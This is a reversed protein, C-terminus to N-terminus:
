TLNFRRVGGAILVDAAIYGYLNFEVEGSTLVNVRLQTTPSEWIAVAEPAFLIASDDVKTTATFNHDVSFAAGFVSGTNSQATVAGPANMPALSPFMPRGTSDQEALLLSWWSSNTLLQSGYMGGTASYIAPGETAVFSNLGDFDAATATAATGGAIMQALVYKDTDTAYARIMERLLLEQFAPESRDLLEFSVRNLGSKKVVSITQYNSTMGTESTAAGEATTAVTPAVQLKPITFSMGSSLLPRAGGAADIAPRTGFSTTVFENLHQPLTLGTNTATSDDAAQVLQMSESDGMAAKIKHGFYDLSTMGEHRPKTFIPAVQPASVSKASAEVAPAATEEVQVVPETMETEKDTPHEAEAPAEAVAEEADESAAVREVAASKFAASEVLSVERLVSKSVTLVGNVPKSAVVEVGVSFGTRLGTSAEILADTGRTTPAVSFEAWLGGDRQEIKEAFGIPETNRHEMLLKVRKSYDISGAEFRVPGVNTHGVEEGFPVIKGAIIRRETDAAEVDISFNLSLTPVNM